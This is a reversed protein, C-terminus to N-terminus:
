SKPLFDFLGNAKCVEILWKVMSVYNAAFHIGFYGPELVVERGDIKHATSKGFVACLDDFLREDLTSLVNGIAVLFKQELEAAKESGSPLNELAPAIAKVLRFFIRRGSIADLQTTVYDKGDVTFEIRKLIEPM